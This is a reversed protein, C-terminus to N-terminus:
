HVNAGFYRPRDEDFLALIQKALDSVEPSRNTTRLKLEVIQSYCVGEAKITRGDQVYNTIMPMIKDFARVFVAEKDTQHEYNEMAEHISPVDPFDEALKKRAVAERDKKSNLVTPDETFVYTDGAHVEPMDHALAYRICKDRDLDLKFVDIAYWVSMALLYSHELDNEYRDEGPVHMRRTIGQLSHLMEMFRIIETAEIKKM